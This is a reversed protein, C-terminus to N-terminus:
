SVAELPIRRHIAQVLATSTGLAGFIGGSMTVSSTAGVGTIPDVWAVADAILLCEFGRDNATRITSDVTVEGGYGCVLLHTIARRRLETELASAYFADYGPCHLQLDAPRLLPGPEDFKPRHPWPRPAHRTAIVTTGTPALAAVIAEINDHAKSAEWWPTHAGCVLLALQDFEVQDDYPWPYPDSDLIRM